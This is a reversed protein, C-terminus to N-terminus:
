SGGTLGNQSLAVGQGKIKGLQEELRSFKRRLMDEKKALMREKNALNRDIRNSQSRIGNKKSSLLGTNKTAGDVFRKVKGIFGKDENGDGRFFAIVENPRSALANSFKEKEFNVNGDRNFEIGLDSLRKFSNQSDELGYVGSILLNRVQGEISRLASDGGLTKSTDTNSDMRNQTQIFSLVNQTAAVFEDVKGGVYEHDEEVKISLPQDIEAKSIDLVVGPVLGDIKASDIEIDFGDVNILGNMAETRKELVLDQNGELLYIAPYELKDTVRDSSSGLILRYPEEQDSADRVVSARVGVGSGNISAAVGQLTNNGENIYVEKRGDPTEFRFYGVGVTTKDPDPFSNSMAAGKQPKRKVVIDWSGSSVNKLDVDGTIVKEQNTSLKFNEIGRRGFMQDLSSKMSRVRGEFDNVLDLKVGLSAKKKEMQQLPAREDSMIQEVVNPPLGSNIGGM